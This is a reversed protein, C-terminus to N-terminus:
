GALYDEYRDPLNGRAALVLGDSFEGLAPDGTRSFAVGGKGATALSQVMYRAADASRAELPEMAFYNGEEDKDFPVVVYYTVSAM